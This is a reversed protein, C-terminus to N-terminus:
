DSLSVDLNGTLCTKVYYAFICTFLLGTTVIILFVTAITNLIIRATGLTAEAGLDAAKGAVQAVNKKPKTSM